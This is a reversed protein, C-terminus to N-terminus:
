ATSTATWTHTQTDYTASWPLHEALLGLNQRDIRDVEVGAIRGFTGARHLMTELDGDFQSTVIDLYRGWEGPNDPAFRHEDVRAFVDALAIAAHLGNLYAAQDRRTQSLEGATHPWVFWEGVLVFGTPALMKALRERYALRLAALNHDHRDGNIAWDVTEEPTRGALACLEDWRRFQQGIDAIDPAPAQDAYAGPSEAVIFTLLHGPDGTQGQTAWATSDYAAITWQRSIVEYAGTKRTRADTLIVEDGVQPLHALAIDGFVPDLHISDYHFQKNGAPRRLEFSCKTLKM